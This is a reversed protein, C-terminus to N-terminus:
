MPNRNTARCVEEVDKKVRALTKGNILISQQHASFQQSCFELEIEDDTKNISMAKKCMGGHLRKLEKCLFCFETKCKPCSEYNGGATKAVKLEGCKANPCPRYENTHQATILNFGHQYKCTNCKQTIPDFIDVCDFCWKVGCLCDM